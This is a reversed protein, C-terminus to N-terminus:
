KNYYDTLFEAFKPGWWERYAQKTVHVGDPKFYAKRQEDTIDNFEEDTYLDIVGFYTRGKNWKKQIKYLANVWSAYEAREHYAVTYFAVPCGWNEKATAIVYEVAGIITKTDFDESLYSDSVEGIPIGSGNTSLQCILFDCKDITNVNQALREVYSTGDDRHILWTGSVAWKTVLANNNEALYDCMSYGGDGATLSSGLFVIQKGEIPNTPAVVAESERSEDISDSTDSFEMCSVTTFVLLFAILCSLLKRM